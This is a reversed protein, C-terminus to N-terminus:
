TEHFRTLVVHFREAAPFEFLHLSVRQELDHENDVDFQLFEDVDLRVAFHYHRM